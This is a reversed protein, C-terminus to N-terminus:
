FTSQIYVTPGFYEFDFEGNLGSTGADVNVNFYRLGAGFGVHRWPQWSVDTDIEVMSGDINGLDLAFGIAQVRFAVSPTIAYSFSVGLHPLPATVDEDAVGTNADPCLGPTTPDPESPTTTPDCIKGSLSFGADLKALHLGIKLQLDMREKRIVAFGYTLRAVSTDYKTNIAGSEIYLDDIHIPPTFTGSVGGDRKLSFVEFELFNRNSIRWEIGGWAVGKNDEVGLTDEISIPPGPPTFDGNINISSDLSPWFGGLYIRFRDNYQDYNKEAAAPLAFLLSVLAFLVSNRFALKM